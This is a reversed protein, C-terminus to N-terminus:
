SYRGMLYTLYANVTPCVCFAIIWLKENYNLNEFHQLSAIHTHLLNVRDANDVIWLQQTRVGDGGSGLVQNIQWDSSSKFRFWFCWM